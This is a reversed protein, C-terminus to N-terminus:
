IERSAHENLIQQAARLGSDLAGNVTGRPAGAVTAEGAFYVTSEFPRSLKKAKEVGGVLLYSYAGLTFPDKSWNYTSWSQLQSSLFTLPRKTIESLTKLAVSVREKEPVDSLELAKPGGQWGVLLPARLPMLTWWTPFHKNPGAHLFGIAEECLDDWFRQRFRFIIRQVNGMQMGSTASAFGDPLPDWEIFAPSAPSSKLVGLPVTVVVRECSFSSPIGISSQTLVDVTGRRWKIKKVVENYRVVEQEPPFSRLIGQVLQDYGGPIRFLSSQNIEEKDTQESQALGKQGIQHIDASHFGEVFAQFSALSRPDTQRLSTMFEQVSRDKRRQSDLRAVIKQLQDWYQPYKQLKGNQYFLHNDCADYFPIGFAEMMKMTSRPRGHIFEAGLEIPVQLGSERLTRIRGGARPQAELVLVSLGKRILHHACGLGAAGAGVVIVDFDLRKM